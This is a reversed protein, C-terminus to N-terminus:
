QQSPADDKFIGAKDENVTTMCLRIDNELDEITNNNLKYVKEKLIRM